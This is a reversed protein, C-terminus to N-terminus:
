DKKPVLGVEMLHQFSGPAVTFSVGEGIEYWPISIHKHVDFYAEKPLPLVKDPYTGSSDHIHLFLEKKKWSM